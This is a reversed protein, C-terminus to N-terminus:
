LLTAASLCHVRHVGGPVADPGHVGAAVAACAPLRVSCSAHAPHCLLKYAAPLSTAPRFAMGAAVHMSRRLLVALAAATSLGVGLPLDCRVAMM